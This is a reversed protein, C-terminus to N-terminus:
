REPRTRLASWTWLAGLCDVVGFGILAAPALSAAALGAFGVLALVRLWVTAHFFPTLGARASLVYYGGLIGVIMGLVHIWPETTPAIHLLGLMTNPSVILMAATAMLYVGFVLVSRAAATM